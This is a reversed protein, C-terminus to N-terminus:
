PSHAKTEKNDLIYALMPVYALTLFTGVLLGGVAVDALPSLRELGVAQEFSIPLMGAITGFATMMVPRFRIKVSKLASEFPANGRKRYNKYFDVLLVGNKIIIGFLLLVGVMSPMCSPKDFIIMSWSAGILALPLVLIMVASLLFSEYIIASVFFLIVTGIAIAKIIRLFSDKLQVIDGENKVSFGAFSVKKLTDDIDAVIHTVPRLARYGKVDISYLLDNREIKSPAFSFYIKAIKELPIAGRKTSIPLFRLTQFNQSFEEKFYVRVFESNLASLDSTIGIRNGKLLLQSAIDFPTIGYYFAKNVDIDIVAEYFDNNWSKSVSTLGKTKKLVEEAKQAAQPLYAYQFSKIRIDIPAKITSLATAGFDYVDVKKIGELLYLKNRIENEIEWISKKRQFRDIAMITMTAETPLNGSGLSLVGFESGFSISSSKLWKQSNLWKLFPTLKNEAKEVSDNSSFSINAKIIGTDMPPMIDRGLLPFINKLSFVFVLVIGGILFVRRTKSNKANSYNLVMEYFNAIKGFSKSYLNQFWKEIATKGTGNKYLFLALKPIFTVSLFYSILLAIILTLILPRFIRQPFDGVFMLPFIIAVTAATGSLVPALVEKTGTIISKQIDATKKLHREINELVVVADDVLMGLALIIATYIVINLEGGILWIVAITGLFVFPISFAAALIARFNGLFFLLVFLTYIIADRLAEIMNKNALLILDRQTDAIEFKINPYLIELKELQKRVEDSVELVSQNPARQIAIAIAKKGNGIYGSTRKKYSWKVEAVDKLLVNLGIAINKLRNIDSKEGYYTLTFFSNSSKAFGFPIDKNIASIRRILNAVNINYKKIKQPDIKIIISGEYGGFVEVNGIKPNTLLSPKIFSDAIKRIEPLTISSNKPSLALVDVPLTFDGIPYIASSVKYPLKSKAVSLMNAVDVLAADLGKKYEFEIKVISYNAVNISSVERVLSLKSVEEEIPKSISNASIEATAGPVQSIIVVQPRSADPFLNKPLKLLGIVGLIIFIGIISYLLYDKKLFFEFM